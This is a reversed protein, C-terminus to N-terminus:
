DSTRAVTPKNIWCGVTHKSDATIGNFFCAEKTPFYKSYTNISKSARENTEPDSLAQKFADVAAWYVTQKEFETGCSKAGAVYLENNLSFSKALYSPVPKAPSELGINM